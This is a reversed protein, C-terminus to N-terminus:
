CKNPSRHVRLGRAGAAASAAQEDEGTARSLVGARRMADELGYEAYAAFLGEVSWRHHILMTRAAHTSINLVSTVQALAAM